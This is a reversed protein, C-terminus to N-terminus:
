IFEPKRNFLHSEAFQPLPVDCCTRTPSRKGYGPDGGLRDMQLRAM